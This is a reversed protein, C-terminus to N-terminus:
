SIQAIFLTPFKDFELSEDLGWERSQLRKALSQHANIISLSYNEFFIKFIM